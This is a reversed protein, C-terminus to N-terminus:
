LSRINGMPERKCGIDRCDQAVLLAPPRLGGVMRHVHSSDRQEQLIILFKKFYM